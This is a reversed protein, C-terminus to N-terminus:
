HMKSSNIKNHNMKGQIVNGGLGNISQPTLGIHGMVPIGATVIHSITQCTDHDAGEIKLANAGAQMLKKVHGITQPLGAKHCLFPLDSVLFTKNLGRAVAETHLTMMEITATVTTAHGHVAMAVSDGVLAVDIRSQEVIKASPTDYCTVM